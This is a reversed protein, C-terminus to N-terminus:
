AAALRSAFWFCGLAFLVAGAWDLGRARFLAPARKAADGVMLAVGILLVQGMEVGINFGLLSAILRPRPLDLAALAGAFGCGHILGFILALWAAGRPLGRPYAYVFAALGFWVLPSMSILSLTSAAGGIGLLAAIPASWARLRVNGEAGVGLAVFGITFGILAEISHLDPRLAGITTLGLTATHGLTFGTAAMILANLRGGCLLVLALIFAVHDLGTWVHQAGVPVFRSLASMFSQTAAASSPELVARPRAQTLVAEAADGNADSLSLFHLHTPAVSLFLRSEIEVPGRALADPTCTVRWLVIMRGGPTLSARPASAGVCAAGGAAVHITRSVEAAFLAEMPETGGLAYLRTVDVSDAEIRADLEDGSVSWSSRSQSRTHAGAPAAALLGVAIVVALARIM